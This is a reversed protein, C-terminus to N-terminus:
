STRLAEETRRRKLVEWLGQMLLSLERVDNDTYDSPKNAVGAVIVIHDGDMVPVNMHRSIHPHGAPYGKKRPNLPNTIM